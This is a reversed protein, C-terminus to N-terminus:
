DKQAGKEQLEIGPLAQEAKGPIFGQKFFLSISIKELSEYSSYNKKKLSCKSFKLFTIFDEGAFNETIWVTM